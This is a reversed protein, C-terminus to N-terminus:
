DTDSGGEAEDGSRGWFTTLFLETMVRWQNLMPQAEMLFMVAERTTPEGPTHTAAMLEEIEEDTPQVGGVDAMFMGRGLVNMIFTMVDHRPFDAQHKHEWSDHQAREADALFIHKIANSEGEIKKVPLPVPLDEPSMGADKMLLDLAAEWRRRVLQEKEENTAALHDFSGAEGVELRPHPKASVLFLASMLASLESGCHEDREDISLDAKGTPNKDPQFIESAHYDGAECSKADYHRERFRQVVSSLFVLLIDVCAEDSLPDLERELGAAHMAYRGISTEVLEGPMGGLGGPMDEMLDRQGPFTGLISAEVLSAIAGREALRLRTEPSSRLASRFLSLGVDVGDGVDTRVRADCWLEGAREAMAVCIPVNVRVPSDGDSMSTFGLRKPAVSGAVLTQM